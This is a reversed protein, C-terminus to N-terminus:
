PSTITPGSPNHREHAALEQRARRRTEDARVAKARRRERWRRLPGSKPAKEEAM